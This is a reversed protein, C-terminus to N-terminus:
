RSVAKFADATTVTPNYLQEVQQLVPDPQRSAFADGMFLLLPINNVTATAAATVMNASGPGISSICPLIKRRNHMKAYATAAQAMGQENRGQYVKLSHNAQSLAEGVGLVCGHGFITYFGEVFKTETMVGDKEFLVYQNDLYRVVAEGATLKITKAM